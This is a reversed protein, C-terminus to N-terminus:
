RGTPHTILLDFPNRAGAKPPTLSQFSDAFNERHARDMAASLERQKEAQAPSQRHHHASRGRHTASHTRSRSGSSASQTPEGPGVFETAAASSNVQPASASLDPGPSTPDPAPSTPDPAPATGASAVITAPLDGPSTTATATSVAEEAGPSVPGAGVVTHDKPLTLLSLAVGFFVGIIAAAVLGLLLLYFATGVHPRKAPASRGPASTLQAQRTIFEFLRPETDFDSVVSSLGGAAPSDSTVTPYATRPVTSPGLEPEVRDQREHPAFKALYPSALGESPM